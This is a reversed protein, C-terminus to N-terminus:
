QLHKKWIEKEIGFLGDHNKIDALREVLSETNDPYILYVEYGDEWLELIKQKDYFLLLDPNWEYGFNYQDYFPKLAFDLKKATDILQETLAQNLNILNSIVSNKKSFCSNTGQSIQHEAVGQKIRILTILEILSQSSIIDKFFVTNQYKKAAQQFKVVSELLETIDADTKQKSDDSDAPKPDQIYQDIDKADFYSKSDDVFTVEFGVGLINSIYGERSGILIEKGLLDRLM